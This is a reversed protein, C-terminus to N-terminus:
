TTFVVMKMWMLLRAAKGKNFGNFPIIKTNGWFYEATQYPYQFAFVIVHLEPFNRNIAMVFTQMFPVWASDTEDAPFAPSFIIFAKNHNKM